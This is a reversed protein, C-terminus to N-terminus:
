HRLRWEELRKIALRIERTPTKQSKKVFGHLILVTGNVVVAFFIRINDKGLVRVEWLPTGVLKKTNLLHSGLGFETLPKIARFVKDKPVEPLSHIFDKVDCKGRMDQYYILTMKPM